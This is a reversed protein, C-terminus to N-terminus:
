SRFRWPEGVFGFVNLLCLLFILALVVLAIKNFPAPLPLMTIVWAFVGFVVALVLLQVLLAIM